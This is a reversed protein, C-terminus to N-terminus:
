AVIVKFHLMVRRVIWRQNNFDALTCKKIRSDM